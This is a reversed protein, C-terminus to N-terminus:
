PSDLRASIMENNNSLTVQSAKLMALEQELAKFKDTMTATSQQLSQLATAIVALDAAPAADVQQTDGGSM